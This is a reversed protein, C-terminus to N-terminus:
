NFIFQKRFQKCCVYKHVFIIKETENSLAKIYSIPEIFAFDYDEFTSKLNALVGKLKAM